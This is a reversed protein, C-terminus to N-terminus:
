KAPKDGLKKPEGPKPQAEAKTQTKNESSPKSSGGGSEHHYGNTMDDGLHGKEAIEGALQGIDAYYKALGDRSGAFLVACLILVGLDTGFGLLPFKQLLRNPLYAWLLAILANSHFQYYRYKNEVIYHFAGLRVELSALKLAPPRIGTWHHIHDILLWRVCSFLMGLTLAALIAYIPPGLGLEGWGVGQLWESVSPVFPALGMLGIFGPLLYAIMLGFQRSFAEM